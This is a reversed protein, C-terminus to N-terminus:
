APSLTLDGETDYAQVQAVQHEPVPFRTVQIPGGSGGDHAIAAAIAEVANAGHAMAGIAYHAGSGISWYPADFQLLVMENTFEFLVGDKRVLFAAFEPDKFDSIDVPVIVGNEIWDDDKSSNLCRQLFAAMSAAGTLALVAGNKLPMIKQIQGCWDYHSNCKSDSALVGDRFAITTM